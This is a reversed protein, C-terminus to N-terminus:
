LAHMMMQTQGVKQLRCHTSGSLEEESDLRTSDLHLCGWTPGLSLLTSESLHFEVGTTPGLNHSKKAWIQLAHMCPKTAHMIGHWAMGHLAYINRGRLSSSFLFLSEEPFLIHEMAAWKRLIGGNTELWVYLFCAFYGVGKELPAKMFLM